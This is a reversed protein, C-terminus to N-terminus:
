DTENYLTKPSIVKIKMTELAPGQNLIGEDLTVFYDIKEGYIRTATLASAIHLADLSKLQAVSAVELAVSYTAPLDIKKNGLNLSIEGGQPIFDLNPINIIKKLFAGTLDERSITLKKPTNYTRSITAATEILTLTSTFAKEEGKEISQILRKAENHHPELPAYKALLVNSDLYLTM